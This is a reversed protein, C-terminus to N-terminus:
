RKLLGKNLGDGVLNFALVLATVVIMPAIAYMPARDLFSISTRLLSGLSPEPPRVGIGVFSMAGELFVALSLSVAAQVILADLANPLVHRFLVRLPLVGVIRAALVYERSRLGRIANRSLRGFLPINVLSVTVLVAVLGPGILAAVTVGMVLGTFALSVDFARQVLMDLVKHMTSVAGLITGIVAGIPVAIAGVILDQRIGYLVRTMLDRGFEDTGLLHAAGPPLFADPGQDVPSYPTFLPAAIGVAAAVVIIM